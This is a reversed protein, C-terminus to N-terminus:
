VRVSVWSLDSTATLPPIGGGGIAEVILKTEGPVLNSITLAPSLVIPVAVHPFQFNGGLLGYSKLLAHEDVSGTLDFGISAEVPLAEWNVLTAHYHTKMAAARFDWRGRTIHGAWVWPAICSDRQLLWWRYPDMFINRAVPITGLDIMGIAALMFARLRALGIESSEPYGALISWRPDHFWRTVRQRLLTQRDAASSM